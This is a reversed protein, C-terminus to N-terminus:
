RGRPQQRFVLRAVLRRDGRLPEFTVAHRGAPKALLDFRAPALPGATQRLNPTGLVVDGVEPATVILTLRAGLPVIRTRPRRAPPGVALTVTRAGAGPAAGPDATTQAGTGDEERTEPPPAISAVLASLGLVLAFLLLVRRIQV